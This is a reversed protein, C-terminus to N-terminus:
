SHHSGLVVSLVIGVVLLMGIISCIAWRVARHSLRVAREHDGRSLAADAQRRWSCPLCGWWSCGFLTALMAWAKYSTALRPRAQGLPGVHPMAVGPPAAFAYSTTPSPINVPNAVPAHLHQTPVPPPPPLSSTAAAGAALITDAPTGIQTAPAVEWDLGDLLDIMTPPM